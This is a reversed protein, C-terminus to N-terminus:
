AWILRQKETQPNLWSPWKYSVFSFEFGYKKALGPLYVKRFQPTLFIELFWFHLPASTQSRVSLIMISLLKEYLRGSAVSFIHITDDQKSAGGSAGGTSVSLKSSDGFVLSTM